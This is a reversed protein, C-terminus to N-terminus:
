GERERKRQRGAAARGRVERRARVGDAELTLARNSSQAGRLVRTLRKSDELSLNPEALGFGVLKGGEVRGLATVRREGTEDGLDM